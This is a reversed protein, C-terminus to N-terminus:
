FLGIEFHSRIGRPFIEDMESNCQTQFDCFFTENLLNTLKAIKQFVSAISPVTNGSLDIKFPCFNIFFAFTQFDLDSM